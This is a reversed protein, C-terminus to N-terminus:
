LRDARRGRYVNFVHKIWNETDLLMISDNYQHMWLNLVIDCNLIKFGKGLFYDTLDIMLEVSNSIILM